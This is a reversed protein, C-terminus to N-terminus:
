PRCILGESSPAKGDLVDLFATKVGEAGTFTKLTLWRPTDAV